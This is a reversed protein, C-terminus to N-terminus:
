QSLKADRYERLQKDRKDDRHFTGSLAFLKPWHESMWDIEEESMDQDTDDFQITELETLTSLQDLEGVRSKLKLELSQKVSGRNLRDHFVLTKLGKLRSLQRFAHEQELQRQRNFREKGESTSQDIDAGTSSLDFYVSLSRLKLCVWDKGLVVAEPAESEPEIRVLDTGQIVNVDLTELSLCGSLIGQVMASTVSPCVRLILSRINTAHNNMLSRYSSESFRSTGFELDKAVTMADLTLSVDEDGLTHQLLKLSQLNTFIRSSMVERYDDLPFEQGNPQWHLRNLNTARRIIELQTKNSLGQISELRLVKLKPFREPLSPMCCSVPDSQFAISDLVLEDTTSCAGWFAELDHQPVTNRRLLIEVLGKCQALANWLMISSREPHRSLRFRKLTGKNAQIFDAFAPSLEADQSRPREPNIVMLTKLKSCHLSGQELKIDGILILDRVSDAHKNIIEFTPNKPKYAFIPAPTIFFLLSRIGGLVVFKFAPLFTRTTWSCASM